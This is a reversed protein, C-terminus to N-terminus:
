RQDSHSFFVTKLPCCKWLGVLMLLLSAMSTMAGVVFSLPLYYLEVTKIQPTVKVALLGNVEEVTLGGKARWGKYYNQNIVVYGEEQAAVNVKLRNPTWLEYSVEGGVGELFVEGRYDPSTFIIAKAPAPVSELAYVSGANSLYAPYLSGLSQFLVYGDKPPEIGNRGYAPFGGIQIFSQSYPTKLPPISFADKLIPSNIWFLDGLIVIVVTAAFLNPWKPHNFRRVLLDMITQLGIGSFLAVCIMILFRFREATRMFSFPPLENLLAWLSVPEARNGFGLWLFIFLCSTLAAYRKFKGGLGVVFLMFPLIGIYMGNEDMDHTFGHLFGNVRSQSVISALTQDRGLLGYLLSELSFGSYIKIHRPYQLTFEISPFFRVAGLLIAGCVITAFIAVTKKLPRQRSVLEVGSYTGMFLLTLFFNYTGGQFWMLTFVGATAFTYRFDDYAKFFFFLAWPMWAVANGISSTGTSLFLVFMSSLMFIFASLLAAPRGLKFHGALCYMGALGIFLHLTINIRTGLLVGFLLEVFFGLSLVNTEPHALHPVGGLSYPNWLPFQGYKVVSDRSVSSRFLFADWDQIGWYDLHTFTPLLFLVAIGALLLFIIATERHRPHIARPKM